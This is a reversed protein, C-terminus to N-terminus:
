IGHSVKKGNRSTIRIQHRTEVTTYRKVLREAPQIAKLLEPYDIRQVEFHSVTARFLSGEIAQEGSDVLRQKLIGEVRQLAAIRAKLRGIKDVISELSM